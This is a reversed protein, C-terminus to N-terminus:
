KNEDVPEKFIYGKGACKPCPVVEVMQMKNGREIMGKGDCRKCKVIAKFVSGCTCDPKCNLALYIDLSINLANECNVCHTDIRKPKM